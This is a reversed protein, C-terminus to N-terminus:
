PGLARLSGNPLGMASRSNKFIKEVRFITGGQLAWGCTVVVTDKCHLIRVSGLHDIVLHRAIDM